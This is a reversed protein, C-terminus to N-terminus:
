LPHPKNPQGSVAPAPTSPALPPNDVYFVELHHDHWADMLVVQKSAGKGTGSPWTWVCTHYWNNGAEEKPRGFRRELMHRLDARLHDALSGKADSGEPLVLRVLLKSMKAGVFDFRWFDVQKGGLDSGKIILHDPEDETVVTGPRDKMLSKVAQPSSGWPIGAAEEPSAQACTVTALVLTGIFIPVM